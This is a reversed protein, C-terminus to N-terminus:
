LLGFVQSNRDSLRAASRGRGTNTPLKKITKPRKSWLKITATTLDADHAIFLPIADDDITTFIPTEDDTTAANVDASQDTRSM